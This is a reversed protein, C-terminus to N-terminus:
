GAIRSPSRKAAPAGRPARPVGDGPEPLAGTEADALILRAGEADGEEAFAAAVLAAEIKRLLRKM